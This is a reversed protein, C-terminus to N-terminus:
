IRKPSEYVRFIEYIEKPLFVTAFDLRIPKNVIKHGCIRMGTDTVPSIYSASL